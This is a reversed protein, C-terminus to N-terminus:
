DTFMSPLFDLEPWKSCLAMTKQLHKMPYLSRIFNDNTKLSNMSERFEERRIKLHPCAELFSEVVRWGSRKPLYFFETLMWKLLGANIQRLWAPTTPWFTDLFLEDRRIHEAEDLLHKRQIDLFRLDINESHRVFTIGFYLAREEAILQLWLLCPFWKICRAALSLTSRLLRSAGLLYYDNDKYTGPHVERLLTRFWDSHKNEEEAFVFAERRIEEDSTNKVIQKLVPQGLIQEFFITQELFYLGHLRNYTARDKTNLTEYIPTYSLPTLIEPIYLDNM